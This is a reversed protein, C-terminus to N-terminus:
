PGGKESEDNDKSRRSAGFRGVIDWCIRSRLSRDCLGSSRFVEFERFLFFADSAAFGDGLGGAGTAVRKAGRIFARMGIRRWKAKQALGDIEVREFRAERVAADTVM